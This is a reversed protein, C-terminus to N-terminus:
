KALAERIRRLSFENKPIFEIAGAQLALRRYEADEHGSMTVVRISPFRSRILATAELGDMGPMDIDMLVLDLEMRAIIKLASAADHAEAVVRLDDSTVMTQRVFRCFAPQDDVVLVRIVSIGIM